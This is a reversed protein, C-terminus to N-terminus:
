FPLEGDEVIPAFNNEGQPISQQPEDQRGSKEGTFHAEEVIIETVTHKKGEKDDWSRNQLRGVIAIMGGSTTVKLEPDRTLRGMGIWKNM